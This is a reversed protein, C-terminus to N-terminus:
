YGVYQATAANIKENTGASSYLRLVLPMRAPSAFLNGHASVTAAGVANTFTYGMRFVQTGSGATTGTASLLSVINSANVAHIFHATCVGTTRQLVVVDGATLTNTSSVTINTASAGASATTVTRASGGLLQLKADANDGTVNYSTLVVQKAAAPYVATAPWIVFNNTGDNAQLTWFGTTTTSYSQGNASVGFILFAMFVLLAVAKQGLDALCKVGKAALVRDTATLPKDPPAESRAKPDAVIGLDVLRAATRKELNQEKAELDKVKGELTAASAKLTDRENALATCAAEVILIKAKAADREATLVTVSAALNDREGKLATIEATLTENAAMLDKEDKM